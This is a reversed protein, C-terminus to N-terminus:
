GRVRRQERGAGAGQEGDRWRWDEMGPRWSAAELGCNICVADWIMMYSKEICLRGKCKPCCLTPLRPPVTEM